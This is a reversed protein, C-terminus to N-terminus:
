ASSGQCPQWTQVSPCGSMLLAEKILVASRHRRSAGMFYERPLEFVQEIAAILAAGDFDTPPTLGLRGDTPKYPKGTDGLRHIMADVFEESGLMRGGDSLSFEDDYDRAGAVFFTQPRAKM